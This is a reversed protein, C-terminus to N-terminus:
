AAVTLDAHTTNIRMAIPMRFSQVPKGAEAALERSIEEGVQVDWSLYPESAGLRPHGLVVAWVPALLADLDLASSTAATVYGDLYLTVTHEARVADAFVTSIPGDVVNLLPRTESVFDVPVDHNRMVDFSGDAELLTVLAQAAQEIRSSM